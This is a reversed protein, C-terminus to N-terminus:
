SVGALVKRPLSMSDLSIVLGFRDHFDTQHGREWGALTSQAFISKVDRLLQASIRKEAEGNQGILNRRRLRLEIAKGHFAAPREIIGCTRSSNKFSHPPQLGVHHPEIQEEAGKSAVWQVSEQSQERRQKRTQAAAVGVHGQVMQHVGHIQLVCADPVSAGVARCSCKGRSHKQEGIGHGHEHGSVAFDKAVFVPAVINVDAGVTNQRLSGFIGVKGPAAIGLMADEREALPASVFAQLEHDFGEMQNGLSKGLRLQDDGAAVMRLRRAIHFGHLFFPRAIGCDLEGAVHMFILYGIKKLTSRNGDHGVRGRGPAAAYGVQSTGVAHGNQTRVKRIKTLHRVHFFQRNRKVLGTVGLIQCATQNIQQRTRFFLLGHRYLIEGRRQAHGHGGDHLFIQPMKFQLLSGLGQPPQGPEASQRV